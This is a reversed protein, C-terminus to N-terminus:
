RRQEIAYLLTVGIILFVIHPVWAAAWPSILGNSGMTRGIVQMTYYGMIILFCYVMGIWRSQRGTLVILPTALFVLVVSIMPDAYKQYYFVTYIPVNLGSKRYVKILHRLESARMESPSKETGVMVNYDTMMKLEMKQYRVESTIAGTKDIEHIVGNHLEWVGNRLKGYDATIMRPWQGGSDAEFILVGSIRKQMREVRNLYIFRNQPGKFVVKEKLLPMNEQMSLRRIENQFRHNASPVVLDNWWFAGICIVFLGVFIPSMIRFVSPGCLQIVDLENERLFRGIALIVGFLSAAPIVDMWLSPIQNLLLKILLGATVRYGIFFDNYDFFIKGIGLVTFGLGCILFQQQFEKWIYRDIIRL